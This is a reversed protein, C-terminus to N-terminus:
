SRITTWILWLASVIILALLVLLIVRDPQALM